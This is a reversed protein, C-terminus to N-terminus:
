LISMKYTLLLMEDGKVLPSFYCMKGYSSTQPRNEHCLDTFILVVWSFWPLFSYRYFCFCLYSKHENLNTSWKLFWPCFLNEILLPSYFLKRSIAIEDLILNPIRLLLLLHGLGMLFFFCFDPRSISARQM